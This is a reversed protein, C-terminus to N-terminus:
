FRRSRRVAQRARLARLGSDPFPNFPILNYKCPVQRAIDLLQRAQEPHDNVGALM